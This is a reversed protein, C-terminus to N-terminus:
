TIGSINRVCNKTVILNKDQEYVMLMASVEGDIFHFGGAPIGGTIDYRNVRSRSSDPDVNRNSGISVYMRGQSDFVITRTRHGASPINNVVIEPDTSSFNQGSEYPWRYVTSGSSAYLYGGNRALGHNLGLGTGNVVVTQTVGSDSERLAM